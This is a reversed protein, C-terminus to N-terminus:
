APYLPSEGEYGSVVDYGGPPACHSLFLKTVGYGSPMDVSSVARYLLGSFMANGNEDLVKVRRGPIYKGATFPLVMAAQVKSKFRNMFLYSAYRMRAEALGLEDSGSGSKQQGSGPPNVGQTSCDMPEIGARVMAAYDIWGPVGVSLIDGAPPKQPLFIIRNLVTRDLDNFVHREQTSANLIAAAGGYSSLSVGSIPSPDMGPFSIASIDNAAIDYAGDDNWPMIRRIPLATRTYDPVIQLGTSALVAKMAEGISGNESSGCSVWYRALAERVNEDGLCAALPLGPSEVFFGSELAGAAKDMRGKVHEMIEKVTMADPPVAADWELIKLDDAESAKRLADVGVSVPDNGSVLSLNLVSKANCFVGSNMSVRYSPHVLEAQVGFEGGEAKIGTVGAAIPIWGSVGITDGGSGGRFWMGADGSSEESDSVAMLSSLPGSLSALSVGHVVAGTGLSFAAAGVCRVRPIDGLILDLEVSSMNYIRGGVTFYGYPRSHITLTRSDM